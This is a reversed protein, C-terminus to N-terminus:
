YFLSLGNTMGTSGSLDPSSGSDIELIKLVEERKDLGRM